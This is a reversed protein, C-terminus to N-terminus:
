YHASLGSLLLLLLEALEELLGAHNVLQRLHENAEVLLGLLRGIGDVKDLLAESSRILGVDIM